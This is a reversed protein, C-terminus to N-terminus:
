QISVRTWSEGNHCNKKILAEVKQEGNYKKRGNNM